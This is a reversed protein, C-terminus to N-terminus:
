VRKIQGCALRDGADGTRQTNEDVAPVYRSPVNGYNDAAAHVIVARGEGALLDVLGFRDTSFRLEATGDGLVMLVPQDGAHSPHGQEGVALHGGATTFPPECRGVAHIHFGHFGPPLNRLSAEVVVRGARETFTVEGISQGQSNVVDARAGPQGATTAGAASTTPQGAEEGDDDGCAVLMFAAAGVSALWRGFGNSAM